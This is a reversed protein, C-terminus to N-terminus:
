AREKAQLRKRRWRCRKSCVLADPRGVFPTGCVVCPRERLPHALRYARRREANIEERHRDRWDRTAERACEQCRSGRGRFTSRNAPFAELPLL